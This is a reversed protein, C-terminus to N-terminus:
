SGNQGLLKRRYMALLESEQEDFNYFDSEFIWERLAAATLVRLVNQAEIDRALDIIQAGIPTAEALSLGSRRLFDETSSRFGFGILTGPFTINSGYSWCKVRDEIHGITEAIDGPKIHTTPEPLAIQECEHIQRKLNTITVERDKLAEIANAESYRQAAKWCDQQDKLYTQRDKDERSLRSVLNALRINSKHLTENEDKLTLISRDREAVSQQLTSILGNGLSIQLDKEEFVTLFEKYDQTQETPTQEKSDLNGDSVSEILNEGEGLFATVVM